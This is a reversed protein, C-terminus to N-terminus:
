SDPDKYSQTSLREKPSILLNNSKKELGRSYFRFIMTGTERYKCNVQIQIGPTFFGIPVYQVKATIQM